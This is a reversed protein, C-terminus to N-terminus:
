RYVVCYRDEGVEEIRTIRGERAGPPVGFFERLRERQPALSREFAVVSTYDPEFPPMAPQRKAPPLREAYAKIQLHQQERFPFSKVFPERYQEPLSSSQAHLSAVCAAAILFLHSSARM